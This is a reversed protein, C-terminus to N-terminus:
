RGLRRLSSGFLLPNLTNLSMLLCNNALVLYSFNSTHHRHNHPFSEDDIEKIWFWNLLRRGVRHTRISQTEYPTITEPFFCKDALHGRYYIGSLVFTILGSVFQRSPRDDLFIVM